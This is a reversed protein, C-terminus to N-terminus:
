SLLTHYGFGTIKIAAKDYDSYVICQPTIHGHFINKSHLYRLGTLIQYIVKKTRDETLRENKSTLVDELLNKGGCHEYVVVRKKRDINYLNEIKALQDPLLGLNSLTHLIKTTKKFKKIRQIELERKEIEEKVTLKIEKGVEWEKLPFIKVVRYETKHIPCEYTAVFSPEGVATYKQGELIPAAGM